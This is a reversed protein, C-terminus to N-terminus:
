RLNGSFKFYIALQVNGFRLVISYEDFINIFIAHYLTNEDKAGNCGLVAGVLYLLLKINGQSNKVYPAIDPNKISPSSVILSGSPILYVDLPPKFIIDLVHLSNINGDVM